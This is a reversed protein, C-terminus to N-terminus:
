VVISRRTGIPPSPVTKHAHQYRCAALRAIMTGMKEPRRPKRVVIRMSAVVAM